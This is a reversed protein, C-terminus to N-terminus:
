KIFKYKGPKIKELMNEQILKRVADDTYSYTTAISISGNYHDSILKVIENRTIIGDHVYHTQLYKKVFLYSSRLKQEKGM